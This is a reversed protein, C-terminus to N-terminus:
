VKMVATNTPQLVISDILRIHGQDGDLGTSEGPPVVELPLMRIAGSLLGGKGKDIEEADALSELDSLGFYLVEFGARECPKLREQIMQEKKVELRCLELIAESQIEGTERFALAGACLAKWLVSAVKRRRTGLYSNRSSLALGDAERVTKGVVIEIDLLLDRVLKKIVVTQQFDKEGFYAGHPKVVNFLKLCVTAVGVFHYPQDAGELRSALPSITVYSGLGASFNTSSPSMGPYMDEDTPAFAARIRGSYGDELQLEQNLHELAEVDAALRSPYTDREGAALQTPNVYISVIISKTQVAALRILSIHGAHLMRMTPVLSVPDPLTSRLRRM